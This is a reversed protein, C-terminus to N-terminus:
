REHSILASEIQGKLLEGGRSRWFRSQGRRGSGSAHCPAQGWLFFNQLVHSRCIARGSMAGRCQHWPCASLGPNCLSLGPNSVSVSAGTASMFTERQEALRRNRPCVLKEQAAQRFARGTIPVTGTPGSGPSTFLPRDGNKIQLFCTFLTLFWLRPEVRMGADGDDALPSLERRVPDPLIDQFILAPM